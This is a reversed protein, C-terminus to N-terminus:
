IKRSGGRAQEGMTSGSHTGRHFLFATFLLTSEGSQTVRNIKNTSMETARTDLVEKSATIPQHSGVASLVVVAEWFEVQGQYVPPVPLGPLHCCARWSTLRRLRGRVSLFSAPPPAASSWSSLQSYNPPPPSSMVALRKLSSAAQRHLKETTRSQPNSSNLQLQVPKQNWGPQWPEM